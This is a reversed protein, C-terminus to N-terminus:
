IDMRNKQQVLFVVQEMAVWMTGGLFFLGEIHNFM